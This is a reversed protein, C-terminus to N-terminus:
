ESRCEECYYDGVVASNAGFGIAEKGCRECKVKLKTQLNDGRWIVIEFFLVLM